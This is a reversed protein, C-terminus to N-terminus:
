FWLNMPLAQGVLRQGVIEFARQIRGDFGGALHMQNRAVLAAAPQTEKYPQEVLVDTGFFGSLDFGYSGLPLFIRYLVLCGPPEPVQLDPQAPRSGNRSDQQNDDHRGMKNQIM